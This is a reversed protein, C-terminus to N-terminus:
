TAPRLRIAIVEDWPSMLANAEYPDAASPWGVAHTTTYGAWEGGDFIPIAPVTNVMISELTAYDKKLQATSDTSSAAALAADAKTSTFRQVDGIASKGIPASLSSNLMYDYISYPDGTTFEGCFTMTYNGVTYDSAWASESVGSVTANIGAKRLQSSILELDTMWDTYPSPGLLTLNFPKGTPENLMGNAGMKFGASELLSKAKAPDFKVTDTAYASTLWKSWRPLSLGTANDTAFYFGKEGETVIANRTLAESLAKRVTVNNYPAKADNTCMYFNGIPAVTEFHHKPDKALFASKYDSNFVTNWDITGADIPLDASSNGSYSLFHLEAIKPKGPQWYHTNATLTFEETSFSKLTYPGTGIPKTDVYTVPNKINKWIFEPVILVESVLFLQQYGPRPFKITAKTPSPASASTFTVGVGDLAPFKKMLNFTFAVTAATFPKGDTYKVGKRINLVLERGGDAWSWSTALWPYIQGTKSLNYQMLPEYIMATAGQTHASNTLSFPNFGPAFPGEPDAIITLSGSPGSALRSASASAAPLLLVALSLALLAALLAALAPREKHIIRM